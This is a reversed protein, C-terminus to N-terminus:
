AEEKFFKKSFILLIFVGITIASDAINFVPSFFIFDEGGVMPIWNWFTGEILPFYLMDIVRGNLFPAYGFAIGYFMCDIINGLAGALILSLSVIFLTSEGKKICNAIYWAVLGSIVLRLITLISKNILTLGFAIGNNELYHLKFWSTISYEEGLQFSSHVWLKVAQDAILIILVTLLSIISQKKIQSM